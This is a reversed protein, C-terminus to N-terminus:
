IRKAQEAYKVSVACLRNKCISLVTEALITNIMQTLDDVSRRCVVIM